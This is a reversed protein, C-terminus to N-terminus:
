TVAHTDRPVVPRRRRRQQRPENPCENFDMVNRVTDDDNDYRGLKKAVIVVVDYDDDCRTFSSQPQCIKVRNGNM